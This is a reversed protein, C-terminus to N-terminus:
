RDGYLNVVINNVTNGMSYMEDRHNMQKTVLLKYRKIERM